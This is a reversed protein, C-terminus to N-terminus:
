TQFGANKETKRDAAELINLREFFMDRINGDRFWDPDVKAIRNLGIKGVAYEAAARQSTRADTTQCLAGETTEYSMFAKNFDMLPYLKEIRNTKNDIFFGWNGWHRDVNGVLYDIINMMYYSSGDRKLIFETKNMGRNACYIEIYEASVISKEESTIIDCRSVRTGDFTAEEYKVHAVDFCDIIRSALIEADVDREDGDKLLSFSGDKKIWAKPAVGPTGLDGAQDRSKIQEANELTMHKGRLSVDVFADSLHHRFLSISEFTEKDGKSRVWYVDMLSLARYSIAIAARERDTCAQIAGISNLIEKAYKRDLTLVRSACWYYFNGLNNVRTDTDEGKELYLNYPMFSPYLVTCKGSEYIRAVRRDKHMVDYYGWGKAMIHRDRKIGM